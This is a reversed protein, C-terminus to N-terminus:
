SQFLLNFTNINNEYCSIKNLM